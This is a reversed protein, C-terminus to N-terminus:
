FIPPFLKAIQDVIGREQSVFASIVLMSYRGALQLDNRNGAV